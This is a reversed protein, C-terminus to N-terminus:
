QEGQLQLQLKGKAWNVFQALKNVDSGVRKISAEVEAVNGLIKSIERLEAVLNKSGATPLLSLM